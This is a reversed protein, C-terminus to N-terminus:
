RRQTAYSAAEPDYKQGEDKEAQAQAAEGANQQNLANLATTADGIGARTGWGVEHLTFLAYLKMVAFYYGFAIFAPVHIIDQPRNWLHPVLKITRTCTLWVMYSLVVNWWPLAYKGEASRVVVMGVLFPGALL